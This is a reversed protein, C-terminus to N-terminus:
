IHYTKDLHSQIISCVVIAVYSRVAKHPNTTRDLGLNDFLGIFLFMTHMLSSQTNDRLVRWPSLLCTYLRMLLWDITSRQNVGTYVFCVGGRLACSNKTLLLPRLM